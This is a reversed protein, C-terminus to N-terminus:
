SQADGSKAVIRINESCNFIVPRDFVVELAKANISAFIDLSVILSKDM